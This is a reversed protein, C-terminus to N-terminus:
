ACYLLWRCAFLFLHRFLINVKRQMEEKTQSVSIRENKNKQKTKKQVMNFYDVWYSLLGISSGMGSLSFDVDFYSKEFCSSKSCVFYFKKFPMTVPSIDQCALSSLHFSGRQFIFSIGTKFYYCLLGSLCLALLDCARILLQSSNKERVQVCPDREGSM